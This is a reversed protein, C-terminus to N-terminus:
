KADVTLWPPPYKLSFVLKVHSSSLYMTFCLLLPSFVIRLLPIKTRLLDVEQVDSFFKSMAFPLFSSAM